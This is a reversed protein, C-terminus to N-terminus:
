EKDDQQQSQARDKQPPKVTSLPNREAAQQMNCNDIHTYIMTTDLNKHGLVSQLTRIDVGNQYMLTAATHRLKHASYEETSLGAARLYKKVLWKVTQVNIRNQNRSIFLAARDKEKPTIRTPLYAAIAQQCAQNLYLMREKNGKGFVRLKDEQIDQLNIGVLESVRLGCNLFLVLICYDREKYPGDVHELLSLSDELTLYHPLNKPLSPYDLNQVPNEKLLQAKDTLYKFFARLSSIKRARSAANLGIASHASNAHKPREKATYHLFDYVDSLTIKQLFPVDIDDIQIQQMWEPHNAADPMQKWKLYRFFVRLDLYYERVTKESKGKIVEMYTLYDKIIQSIPEHYQM